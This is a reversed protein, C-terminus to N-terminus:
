VARCRWEGLVCAMLVDGTGNRMHADVLKEFERRLQEAEGSSRVGHLRVRFHLSAGHLPVQGEELYWCGGDEAVAASRPRGVRVYGLNPDMGDRAVYAPM